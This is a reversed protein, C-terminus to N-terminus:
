SQSDNTEQPSHLSYRSLCYKDVKSTNNLNDASLYKWGMSQRCKVCSVWAIEYSGTTFNETKTAGLELNFGTKFLYGRKKETFTGQGVQYCRSEIDKELAIHTGCEKCSYAQTKDLERLCEAIHDSRMAELNMKAQKILDKQKDRLDELKSVEKQMGNTENYFSNLKENLDKNRTVYDPVVSLKSLIDDLQGVDKKFHDLQRNLKDRDAKVENQENESLKRLDQLEIMEKKMADSVKNYHSAQAKISNISDSHQKILKDLTELKGKLDSKLQALSQYERMNQQKQLKLESLHSNVEKKLSNLDSVAVIGGTENESDTGLDNDDIDEIDDGGPVKMEIIQFDDEM